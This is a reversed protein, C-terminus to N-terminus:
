VTQIHCNGLLAIFFRKSIYIQISVNKAETGAFFSSLKTAETRPILLPVSVNAKRGELFIAFTQWQGCPFISRASSISLVSEFRSVHFLYTYICRSFLDRLFIQRVTNMGPSGSGSWQSFSMIGFNTFSYLTKDGAIFSRLSATIRLM